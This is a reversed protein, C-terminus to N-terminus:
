RGSNGFDSLLEVAIMGLAIVAVVAVLILVVDGIAPM